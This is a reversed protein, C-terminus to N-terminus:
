WILSALKGKLHRPGRIVTLGTEALWLRRGSSTLITRCAHAEPNSRGNMDAVFRAIHAERRSAEVCAGLWQEIRSIMM